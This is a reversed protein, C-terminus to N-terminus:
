KTLLGLLQGAGAGAALLAGALLYWWRPKDSPEIARSSSSAPAPAPQNHWAEMRTRDEAQRAILTSLKEDMRGLRENQASVADALKSLSGNQRAQWRELERARADLETLAEICEPNREHQPYGIPLTM